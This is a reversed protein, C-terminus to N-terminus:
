ILKINKFQEQYLTYQYISNSNIIKRIVEYSISANAEPRTRPVLVKLPRLVLLQFAWAMPIPNGEQQTWPTSARWLLSNPVMGMANKGKLSTNLLRTIFFLYWVKVKEKLSSKLKFTNPIDNGKCSGILFM